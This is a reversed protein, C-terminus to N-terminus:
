ARDQAAFVVPPEHLYRSAQRKADILHYARGVQEPTLGAADAAADIPLDHEKAYLCLDTQELSLGFYFESQSQELSYTDTTPTRRRIEKPVCLYEALQYVQSKYLHAIPKLDAAGDGQKVFFGQDHELRNPTGAVAFRHLDAYYYEMMKRVRQKFNTAAVIGLYAALPLRVRREEGSPARVVIRYLPYGDQSVLDPLVIKCRYGDGYEPIASRIAADRREYCGSATLTATIDEVITRINFATGLARGLRLSAPSSDAEPMLLAVVRNPGLARAALAGVVASDIGGSLAVVAGRRRLRGVTRRILAEIHEATVAADIELLQRSLTQVSM